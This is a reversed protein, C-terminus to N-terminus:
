HPGQVRFQDPLYHVEVIDQDIASRSNRCDSFGAYTEGIEHDDRGNRIEERSVTQGGEALIEPATFERGVGTRLGRSSQRMNKNRSVTRDVLMPSRGLLYSVLRRKFFRIKLREIGCYRLRGSDRLCQSFCTRSRGEGIFPAVHNWHEVFERIFDPLNHIASSTSPKATKRLM